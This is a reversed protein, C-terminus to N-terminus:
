KRKANYKRNLENAKNKAESEVYSEFVQERDREDIVTYVIGSYSGASKEVHYPGKNVAIDHAVTGSVMAKGTKGDIRVHRGNITVWKDAM